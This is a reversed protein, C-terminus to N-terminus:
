SLSASARSSSRAAADNQIQRLFAAAKAEGVLHAGILHLVVAEVRDIGVGREAEIVVLAVVANGRAHQLHEVARADHQQGVVRGLEVTEGLGADLDGAPHRELRRDIGVVAAIQRRLRRAGAVLEIM